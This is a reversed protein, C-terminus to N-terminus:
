LAKKREKMRRVLLTGRSQALQLVISLLYLNIYDTMLQFAEKEGTLRHKFMVFEDPFM